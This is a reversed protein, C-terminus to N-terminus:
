NADAVSKKGSAALSMKWYYDSLWLQVALVAIAGLLAILAPIGQNGSVWLYTGILEFGLVVAFTPYHDRLTARELTAFYVDNDGDLRAQRMTVQSVWAMAGFVLGLLLFWQGFRDPGLCGILAFEIIGIFFPFVSDGTSPVWRFRMVLTSYILWILLVGLLTAVIQVWSLFSVFSWQYLSEQENLHSWMLELALAQVISLLTLLVTPLHHKARQSLDNQPM